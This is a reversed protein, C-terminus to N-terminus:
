VGPGPVFAGVVLATVKVAPLPSEPQIAEAAALVPLKDVACPKPVHNISQILCSPPALSLTVKVTGALSAESPCCEAVIVQVSVLPGPCYDIFLHVSM